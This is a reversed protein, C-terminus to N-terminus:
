AYSVSLDGDPIDYHERYAEGVKQTEEGCFHLV